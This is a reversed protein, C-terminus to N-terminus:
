YILDTLALLGRRERRKLGSLLLVACSRVETPSAVHTYNTGALGLMTYIKPFSCLSGCTLSCVQGLSVLCVFSMTYVKAVLKASTSKGANM